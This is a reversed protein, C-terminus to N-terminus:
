SPFSPAANRVAAAPSSSRAGSSCTITRCAARRASVRRLLLPTSVGGNSSSLTGSPRPARRRSARRHRSPAPLASDTMPREDNRAADAGPLRRRDDLPRREVIPPRPAPLTTSSGDCSESSTRWPSGPPASASAPRRVSRLLWRLRWSLTPLRVHACVRGGRLRRTLFEPIADAATKPPLEQGLPQPQETAGADRHDKRSGETRVIESDSSHGQDDRTEHDCECVETESAITWTSVTVSLPRAVTNQALTAPPVTNETSPITATGHIAVKKWSGLTSGSTM